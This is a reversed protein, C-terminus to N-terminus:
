FSSKGERFYPQGTVITKFTKAMVFPLNQPGMGTPDPTTHPQGRRSSCRWTFKMLIQGATRIEISFVSVCM